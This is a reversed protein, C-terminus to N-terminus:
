PTRTRRGLALVCWDPGHVAASYAGARAPTLVGAAFPTSVLIARIAAIKDGSV